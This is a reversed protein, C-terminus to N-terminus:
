RAVQAVAERAATRAKVIRAAQSKVSALGDQLEKLTFTHSFREAFEKHLDFSCLFEVIEAERDTMSISGTVTVNVDLKM